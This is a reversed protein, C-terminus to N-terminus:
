LGINLYTLSPNNPALFPADPSYKSTQPPVCCCVIWCLSGANSVFSAPTINRWERPLCSGLGSFSYSYCPVPPPEPEVGPDPIWSNPGPRLLCFFGVCVDSGPNLIEAPHVKPIGRLNRPDRRGWVLVSKLVLTPQQPGAGKRLLRVSSAIEKGWM